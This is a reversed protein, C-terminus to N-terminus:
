AKKRTAQIIDFQSTSWLAMDSDSPMVAGDDEPTKPIITPELKKKKLKSSADNLTIEIEALKISSIDHKRAWKVWKTYDKPEM